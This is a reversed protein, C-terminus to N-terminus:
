CEESMDITYKFLSNIRIKETGNRENVQVESRM